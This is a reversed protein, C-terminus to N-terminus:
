DPAIDAAMRTIAAELEARGVILESRALADALSPRSATM